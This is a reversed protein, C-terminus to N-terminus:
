NPDVWSYEILELIVFKTTLLIPLLIKYFLYFKKKEFFLNKYNKIIKEIEETRISMCDFIKWIM